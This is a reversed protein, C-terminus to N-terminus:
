CGRLLRLTYKISEKRFIFEVRINDNEQFDNLECPMGNKRLLSHENLNLKLNEKRNAFYDLYIQANDPLDYAEPNENILQEGLPKNDLNNIQVEITRNECNYSIFKGFCHIIEEKEKVRNELKPENLIKTLNVSNCIWAENEKREIWGGLIDGIKLDELNIPKNRFLLNNEKYKITIDLMPNSEDYSDPKHLIVSFRAVPRGKLHIEQKEIDIAIIRSPLLYAKYRGKEINNETKQIAPFHKIYDKNKGNILISQIQQETEDAWSVNDTLWPASPRSNFWEDWGKSHRFLLKNDNDLILVEAEGGPCQFLNACIDSPLDVECDLSLWPQSLYLAKTTRAREELSEISGYLEKKPQNAYPNDIQIMFDWLRINIWKFNMKDGYVRKFYEMDPSCRPWFCDSSATVVLCTPKGNSPMNANKCNNRNKYGELLATFDKHAQNSILNLSIAPQADSYNPSDLLELLTPLEPYSIVSNEVRYSDNIISEENVEYEWVPIGLIHTEALVRYLDLVECDKKLISEGVYGKRMIGTGNISLNNVFAIMKKEDEIKAFFGQEERKNLRNGRWVICAQALRLNDESLNNDGNLVQEICNEGEDVLWQRFSQISCKIEETQIAYEDRIANILGLKIQDYNKM